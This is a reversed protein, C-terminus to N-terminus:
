WAPAYARARPTQARVMSDLGGSLEILPKRFSRGWAGACGTVARRVREVAEDRSGIEAEPLAFDWPSWAAALRINGGAITACCGPMLEAMGRLATSAPRLDRYVLAQTIVTWDIEGGM